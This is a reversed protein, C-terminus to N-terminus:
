HYHNDRVRAFRPRIDYYHYQSNRAEILDPPFTEFFKDMVSLKLDKFDHRGWVLRVGPLSTIAEQGVALLGRTKGSGNGGQIYLVPISKLEGKAWLDKKQDYWALIKEQTPNPPNPYGTKPDTDYPALLLESM